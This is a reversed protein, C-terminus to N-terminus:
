KLPNAAVTPVFHTKLYTQLTYYTLPQDGTNYNLLKKLKPDEEVKIIRRDSPDQLDHTKIYNCIYKTVDVRSRPQSHAWSTFAALEKSIQVPKLFGSNTNNRRTKPRVKSVRLSHAKLTKVRKNITRLFKVGKSKATSDRLKNIEEEIVSILDNFEAEVSERTPVTRTKPQEEASTSPVTEEATTTVPVVEAKKQKKGVAPAVVPQEQVPEEKPLQAKVTKRPM